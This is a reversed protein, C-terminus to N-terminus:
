GPHQNSLPTCSVVDGEADDIIKYVAVAEAPADVFADM